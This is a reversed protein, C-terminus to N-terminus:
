RDIKQHVLMKPDGLLTLQLKPRFDEVNQVMRVEFCRTEVEPPYEIPAPIQQRGEALKRVRRRGGPLDLKSEFENKLRNFSALSSFLDPSM